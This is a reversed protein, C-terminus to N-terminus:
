QKALRKLFSQLSVILDFLDEEEAEEGYVELAIAGEKKRLATESAREKSAVAIEGAVVSRAADIFCVDGAKTERVQSIGRNSNMQGSIISAIEQM